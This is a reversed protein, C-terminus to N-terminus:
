DMEHDNIKLQYTEGIKDAYSKDYIHHKAMKKGYSDVVPVVKGGAKVRAFLFLKSVQNIDLDKDLYSRLALYTWDPNSYISHSWDGEKFAQLQGLTLPPSGEIKQIVDKRESESMRRIFNDNKNSLLPIYKSISAALTPAVTPAPDGGSFIISAALAGSTVLLPYNGTQWGYLTTGVILAKTFLSSAYGKIRSICSPSAPPELAGLPVHNNVEAIKM